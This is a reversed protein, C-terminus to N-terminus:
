RTSASRGPRTAARRLVVGVRAEPLRPTEVAQSQTAQEPRQEPPGALMMIGAIVAVLLFLAVALVLCGLSIRKLLKM